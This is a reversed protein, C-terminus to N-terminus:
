PTELGLRQRAQVVDRAIQARLAEPSEFRREARLRGEFTLDVELGYLDGTFDIM